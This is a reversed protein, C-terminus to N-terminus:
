ARCDSVFGAIPSPHAYLKMLENPANSMRLESVLWTTSADFSARTLGVDTLDIAWTVSFEDM